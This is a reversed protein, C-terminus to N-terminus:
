TIKNNKAVSNRANYKSIFATFKGSYMILVYNWTSTACHAEASTKSTELTSSVNQSQDWTFILKTPRTKAETKWLILAGVTWYLQHERHLLPGLCPTNHPWHHCKSAFSFPSVQMVAQSAQNINLVATCFVSVSINNIYFIYKWLLQCISMDQNMLIFYQIINDLKLSKKRKVQMCTKLHVNSIEGDYAGDLVLGRTFGDFGALAM